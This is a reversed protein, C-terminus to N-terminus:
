KKKWGAIGNPLIRIVVIALSFVLIQAIVPTWVAAIVSNSTGIVAAGWIAGVPSAAGGVLISLFAPILFGVGMQPDVSMLPAMVAGALGALGSGFAFTLRDIRRTNVGLCSAMQRNAIVGRATLGLKTKYLVLFTAATVAIAMAMVFLRYSSYTIGLFAVPEAFPAVVQQSAPGFIVIIAQKLALSIGWTALITDLFRHYIHRIIFQEILLGIFAVLCFAVILVLWFPAGLSQTYVVSYAGILFLEGHALNIVNMMGFIIVLGICVLLLALVYGTADLGILFILSM